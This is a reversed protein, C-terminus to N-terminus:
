LVLYINTASLVAKNYLGAVQVPNFQTGSGDADYFLAGTSTNYLIRQALTTATSVGAGANFQSAQLLIASNGLGIQISDNETASFDLITASATNSKSLKFADSGTDGQLQDPGSDVILIDDGISGRLTDIGEGGELTDAGAGWEM